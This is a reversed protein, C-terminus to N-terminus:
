LQKTMKEHKPALNLNRLINQLTKSQKVWVYCNFSSSWAKIISSASHVVGTRIQPLWVSQASAILSFFFFCSQSSNPSEPCVVPFHFTGRFASCEQEMSPNTHRTCRHGRVKWEPKKGLEETCHTRKWWLTRACARGKVDFSVGQIWLRERRGSVMEGDKEKTLVTGKSRFEIDVQEFYSERAKLILKLTLKVVNWLLMCRKESAISM